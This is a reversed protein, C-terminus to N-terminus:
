PIPSSIRVDDASVTVLRPPSGALRVWPQVHTWRRLTFSSRTLSEDTALEFVECEAQAAGPVHKGQERRPAQLVDLSGLAILLREPAPELLDASVYGGRVAQRSWLAQGTRADVLTARWGDVVLARDGLFRVFMPPETGAFVASNVSPRGEADLSTFRLSSGSALAIWRGDPALYARGQLPLRAREAGSSDILRLQDGEAHAILGGDATAQIEGRSAFEFQGTSTFENSDADVRRFLGARGPRDPHLGAQLFVVLRASPSLEVVSTGAVELIPDPGPRPPFSPVPPPDLRPLPQLLRIRTWEAVRSIGTGALCPYQYGVIGLVEHRPSLVFREGLQVQLPAAPVASGDQWQALRRNSSFVGLLLRPGQEVVHVFAVPETESAQHVVQFEPAQAMALLVLFSPTTVM